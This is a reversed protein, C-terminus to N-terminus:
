SRRHGLLNIIGRVSKVRPLKGSPWYILARDNVVVELDNSLPNRLRKLGRNDPGVLELDRALDFIKWLSRAEISHVSLKGAQDSTVRIRGGGPADLTLDADISVQALLAYVEKSM